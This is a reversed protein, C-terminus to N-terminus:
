VKVPSPPTASEITARVYEVVVDRTPNMGGYGALIRFTARNTDTSIEPMSVSDHLEVLQAEGQPDNPTRFVELSTRWAYETFEYVLGEATTLAAKRYIMPTDRKYM